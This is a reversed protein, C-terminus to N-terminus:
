HFNSVPAADEDTETQKNEADASTEPSGGSPGATPLALHPVLPPMLTSSGAEANVHGNPHVRPTGYPQFQWEPMM